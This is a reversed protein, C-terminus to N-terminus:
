LFLRGKEPGVFVFSLIEGGLWGVIVRLFTCTDLFHVDSTADNFILISLYIGYIKSDWKIYVLIKSVNNYTAFTLIM